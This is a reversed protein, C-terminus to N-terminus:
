HGRRATVQRARRLIAGCRRCRTVTLDVSSHEGGGGDGVTGIERTPVAECRPCRYLRTTARVIAITAVAFTVFAGSLVSAQVRTLEDWRGLGVALATVAVADVVLWGRLARWWAQRRRQFEVSVDVEPDLDPERSPWRRAGM